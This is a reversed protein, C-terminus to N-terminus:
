SKELSIMGFPVYLLAVASMGVTARQIKKQVRDGEEGLAYPYPSRLLTERQSLNWSLLGGGEPM